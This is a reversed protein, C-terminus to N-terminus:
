GKKLIIMIERLYAMSCEAPCKSFNEKELCYGRCESSGTKNSVFIRGKYLPYFLSVPFSVTTKCKEHNYLFLGKEPALMNAQYGIILMEKDKFVQKYNKWVSGCSCTKVAKEKKSKIKM